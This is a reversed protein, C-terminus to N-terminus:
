YWTRRTKLTRTVAEESGGPDSGAERISGDPLIELDRYGANFLRKVDDTTLRTDQAEATTSDTDQLAPMFNTSRGKRHQVRRWTSHLTM